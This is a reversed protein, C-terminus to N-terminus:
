LSWIGVAKESLLTQRKNIKELTWFDPEENLWDDDGALSSTMLIESGAFVPRKEAFKANQLKKNLKASLLTLNGLRNIISSHNPLRLDAPPTQPYIHEIHVRDPTSVELEETTRYAHEIERLLFRQTKVRSVTAREFAAKFQDDEPAFERLRNVAADCDNNARLERAISYVENEFKSTELNGIVNHRVFTVVLAQLLRVRDDANTVTDFATLILPYTSAAGLENIDTLRKQTEANDDKAAAIDAYISASDALSRSFHLSDVDQDIIHNKIERYLSQTKVDGHHSIWYHRIFNKINAESEVSLIEGWLDIAEEVNGENTRRLVLNRLLDPTSLGIGRDNLTEFVAAANDEDGSVVAVLSMHGTLVKQIRLAWRHFQQPDALADSKAQFRAAFFDRARRIQIHSQYESEPALYDATRSELVERRFFDRDYRNLTLKYINKDENDDYDTLYRQSTRTAADKAYISLFDRIVSLLITSTALRQQGDLLLHWSDNNVMVISGLFYEKDDINAEPYLSEFSTLDQWFIEVESTTWSYNRQWEPVKLPPNTMSLLSGITKKEPMYLNPM